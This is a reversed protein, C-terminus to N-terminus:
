CEDNDGKPPEPLPMWHSVCYHYNMYNFGSSSDISVLFQITEAGEPSYTGVDYGELGFILVQEDEDPLRDKVSIWKM